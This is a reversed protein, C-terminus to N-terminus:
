PQRADPLAVRDYQEYEILWQPWNASKRGEFEQVWSRLKDNQVDRGEYERSQRM